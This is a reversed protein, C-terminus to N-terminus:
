FGCLIVIDASGCARGALGVVSCGVTTAITSCTTSHAVISECLGHIFTAYVTTMNHMQAQVFAQVKEPWKSLTYKFVDKFNVFLFFQQFIRHQNITHLTSWLSSQKFNVHAVHGTMHGHRKHFTDFIFHM